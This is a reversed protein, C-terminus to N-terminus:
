GRCEVNPNWDAFLGNPNTRWVWAHLYWIGLSPAPKLAQGMVMPPDDESRASLPVAYEIGVLEYEGDDTRAYVLIEPHEVEITDDLLTPHIHHYGMGGEPPNALCQSVARPYGAAEAEDLSRFRATAARARAVDREVDPGYDAPDVSAATSVAGGDDLRNASGDRQGACGAMAILAFAVIAVAATRGPSSRNFSTM